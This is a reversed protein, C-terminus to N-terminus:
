PFPLFEILVKDEPESLLGMQKVGQRANEDDEIIIQKMERPSKYNPIIWM